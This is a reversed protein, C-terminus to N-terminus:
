FSLLNEAAQIVDEPYILEMCKRHSCSKRERYCPACEMDIYLNINERYGTISPLLYGGFLIVSRKGVGNAIHMLGGELGIFLLSKSIIAATGRLTKGRYDIVGALLADMGDGVQVIQFDKKFYDVVKQFKGQGWERNSSFSAKGSSMISITPHHHLVERAEEKETPTLYLDMSVDVDPFNYPLAKLLDLIVHEQQNRQINYWTRVNNKGSYIHWGRNEDVHPNHLFLEPLRTETIVYVEPDVRKIERAVTALMLTDGVAREKKKLVIRRKFVNELLKLSFFSSYEVFFM